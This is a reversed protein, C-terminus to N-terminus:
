DDTSMVDTDSFDDIYVQTKRSFYHQIRNIWTDNKSTNPKSSKILKLEEKDSMTKIYKKRIQEQRLIDELVGDWDNLAVVHTPLPFNTFYWPRVDNTVWVKKSDNWKWSNNESLWKQDLTFSNNPDQIDWRTEVEDFYGYTDHDSPNRPPLLELIYIRKIRGQKDMKYVNSEVHLDLFSIDFDLITNRGRITRLLNDLQNRLEDHKKDAISRLNRYIAKLHKCKIYGQKILLLTHLLESKGNPLETIIANLVEDDERSSVNEIKIAIFKVEQEHSNDYKEIQELLHKNKLLYKQFREKYYIDNNEHYIKSM